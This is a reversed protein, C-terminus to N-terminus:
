AMLITINAWVAVLWLSDRGTHYVCWCRSRSRISAISPKTQWIAISMSTDMPIRAISRMSAISRMAAATAGVAASFFSQVSDYTITIQIIHLM